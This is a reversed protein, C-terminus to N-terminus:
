FTAKYTKRDTHKAQPIRGRLLLKTHKERLMRGSGDLLVQNFTSITFSYKDVKRDTTVESTWAGTSEESIMM